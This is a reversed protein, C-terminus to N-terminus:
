ERVTDGNNLAAANRTAVRDDPALGSLIEIEDNETRGTRVMRYEAIGKDNIVFVGVIGARNQVAEVPVKLMPQRGTPFLVRAFAGSRLGKSKIDLKVLHTHAVPDAAPSLRAVRAEVAEALGDVEVNIPAGMELDSYIEEGVATQVQLRSSNEVMVIPHGPAAIDGQNAFKQVVVGDIPSMVVAYKLQGEATTLGARAQAARSAAIDYNLKMKEYQQRTAVEDKYLASFREYDAKADEMAKDAQDVGQNAQAVGGEIDAPDITFLRQGARVPQGEVVAIDKIYGMLRSAVQVSQVAVVTGPVAAYVKADQVKLTIVGAEVVRSTGASESAEKDVCGALVLGLAIAIAIAIAIPVHKNM